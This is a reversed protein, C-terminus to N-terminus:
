DSDEDGGFMNKAKGSSQKPSPPEEVKPPAKPGGAPAAVAPAAAAFAGPNKLATKVTELQEWSYSELSLGLSLVQKYANMLSHPVNIITPYNLSFCLAAVNHLAVYLSQAIQDGTIDLISADYATGNEYVSRIKMSYYFPKINLKMLLSAESAGVKNGQKILHVDDVIDIQGKNIRTAINMSQFFTTQTPEMGTAGAPVNVDCPAIAGAKAPCQVKRNIIERRLDNVSGKTFCFGCNGKVCDLLNNLGKNNTEKMFDRIIKRILTNKGFLFRARGRFDKRMEAINRSGFNDVTVVLCTSYEELMARLKKAYDLKRQPIIRKLRVGPLVIQIESSDESSM